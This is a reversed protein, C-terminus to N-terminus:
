IIFYRQFTKISHFILKGLVYYYKKHIESIGFDVYPRGYGGESHTAVKFDGFQLLREFYQSRVWKGNENISGYQGYNDQTEAALYNEDDNKEFEVFKLAVDREKKEEWGKKHHNERTNMKHAFVIGEGGIGLVRELNVTKELKGDLFKLFSFKEDGDLEIEVNNKTSIM